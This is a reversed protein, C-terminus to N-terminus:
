SGLEWDDSRDTQRGAIVDDLRRVEGSLTEDWEVKVWVSGDRERHLIQREDFPAM